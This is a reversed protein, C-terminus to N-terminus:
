YKLPLHRIEKLIGNDMKVFEGQKLQSIIKMISSRSLRTKEQIYQAATINERLEAPERMLELLQLRLSAYATPASLHSSLMFFRISMRYLHRSFLEWLNLRAVLQRFEQTSVTAVEAAGQMQIFLSATELGGGIGFIAPVRLTGVFIEDAGNYLKCVGSRVLYCCSGEQKFMDLRTGSPIVKFDVYPSLKYFLKATAVYDDTAEPDLTAM